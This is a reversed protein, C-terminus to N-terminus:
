MFIFHYECDSNSFCFFLYHSYKNISVETNDLLRKGHRYKGPMKMQKNHVKRYIYTTASVKEFIIKIFAVPMEKVYCCFNM